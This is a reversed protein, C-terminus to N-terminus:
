FLFNWVKGSRIRVASDCREEDKRITRQSPKDKRIKRVFHAQQGTIERRLTINNKSYERYIRKIIKM